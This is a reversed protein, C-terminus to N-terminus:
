ARRFRRNALLMGLGGAVLALSSPEPVVYSNHFNAEVTAIQSPSLVGTYIDIEAISGSFYDGGGENNGIQTIPNGFATGSGTTGDLAGNFNFSGALTSSVALDVLSFSSSPVTATGSGVDQLYERLFDQHGGYIDYELAGSGSGGTLAQRSGSSGTPQIYAFITYGSGSAIPNLLGFHSGVGYSANAGVINVASAGSPTAGAVLTPLAGNAFTATNNNGSTDAWIGTTPDYNVAKLQVALQANASLGGVALVGAALACPISLITLNKM